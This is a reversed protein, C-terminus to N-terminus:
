TAVVQGTSIRNRIRTVLDTIDNQIAIPLQAFPVNVQGNGTIPEAADNPNIFADEYSISLSSAAVNYSFGTLRRTAM